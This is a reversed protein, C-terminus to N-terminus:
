KLLADLATIEDLTMPRLNPSVPCLERLRQSLSELTSEQEIAVIVEEAIVALGDPTLWHEQRPLGPLQWVLQCHEPSSCREWPCAKDTLFAELTAFEGNRLHDSEVWLLHRGEPETATIFDAFATKPQASPRAAETM